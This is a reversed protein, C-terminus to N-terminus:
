AFTPIIIAILLIYLFPSISKYFRNFYLFHILYEYFNEKVFVQYANKVGSEISKSYIITYNNYVSNYITFDQM